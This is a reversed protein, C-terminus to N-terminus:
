DISVQVSDIGVDRIKRASDETINLGNTSLFLVKFKERCITAIEFFDPNLLPDGGSFAIMRVDLEEM